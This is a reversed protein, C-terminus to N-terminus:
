EMFILHEGGFEIVDYVSVINPHNLQAIKRAEEIVEEPKVLQFRSSPTLRKIAVERDLDNDYAHWVTGFGGGGVYRRVEFRNQIVTGEQIVVPMRKSWRFCPCHIRTAM